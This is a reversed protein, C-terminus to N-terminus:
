EEDNVYRQKVGLEHRVEDAAQQLWGEIVPEALRRLNYENTRSRVIDGVEKHIAKKADNMIKTKLETTLVEAVAENVWQAITKQAGQALYKTIPSERGNCHDVEWKGWKDDLGLLKLTVLRKQKNLDEIIQEVVSEAHADNAVETAAQVFKGKLVAAMEAATMPAIPPTPEKVEPITKKRTAM